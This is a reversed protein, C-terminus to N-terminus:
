IGLTPFMGRIKEYSRASEQFNPFSYSQNERSNTKLKWPCNVSCFFRLEQEIGSITLFRWLPEKRTEPLNFFIQSFKSLKNLLIRTERSCHCDGDQIISLDRYSVPQMARLIGKASIGRRRQTISERQRPLYNLITESCLKERPFTYM